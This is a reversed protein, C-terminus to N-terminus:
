DEPIVYPLRSLLMVLQREADVRITLDIPLDDGRAGTEISMKEDDKKYRWDEQDLMKCLAQYAQKARALNKEDAM